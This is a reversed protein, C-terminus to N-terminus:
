INRLHESEWLVQCLHERSIESLVWGRKGAIKKDEAVYTQYVDPNYKGSFIDTDDHIDPQLHNKTDDHKTKPPYENKILLYGTTNVEGANNSAKCMYWGSDFVDANEIKLRAGWPTLKSNIRDENERILVDDKYWKYRPLPNGSIECRIRINESKYKTINKMAFDLNLKAKGENDLMDTLLKHVPIEFEYKKSSNKLTWHQPDCEGHHVCRMFIIMWWLIVFGRLELM